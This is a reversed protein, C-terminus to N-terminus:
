GTLRPLRDRWILVEVEQGPVDCAFYLKDVGEEPDLDVSGSDFEKGAKLTIYKGKPTAVKGPLFSYRVDVNGRCQFWIGTCPLPINIHYQKDALAMEVIDIIQVCRAVSVLAPDGHTFM